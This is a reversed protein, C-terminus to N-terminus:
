YNNRQQASQRQGSNANQQQQLPQSGRLGQKGSGAAASFRGGRGGGHGSGGASTSVESSSPADEPTASRISNGGIVGVATPGGALKLTKRLNEAEVAVKREDNTAFECNRNAETIQEELRHLISECRETWENVMALM